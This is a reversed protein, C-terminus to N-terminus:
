KVRSPCWGQKRAERKKVCVRDLLVFLCLRVEASIKSANIAIGRRKKTM